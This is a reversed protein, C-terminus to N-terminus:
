EPEGGSSKLKKESNTVLQKSFNLATDADTLVKQIEAMNPYDAKERLRIDCKAKLDQYHKELSGAYKIM